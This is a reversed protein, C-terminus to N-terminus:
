YANTENGKPPALCLIAESKAESLKLLCRRREASPPLNEEVQRILNQFQRAMSEQSPTM